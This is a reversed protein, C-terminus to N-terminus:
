KRRRALIAAVGVGLLAFTSPEPVTQFALGTGIGSETAFTSQTGDPTIKIIPGSFTTVFMNGASDFALRDPGNVSAFTSEVGGPTFENINGSGEDVEFLDGASNFALGAPFTLGSAFTSQTGGPTIETIIGNGNGYGSGVFLDGANNITLSIPTDFGTAFTSQLGGPTFKYINGSNYDAEFLNGANNFVLAQPDVGSAFTSQIGGPTIETINGGPGNGAANAVFLDGAGNFALWSPGNMGTAFTTQSGDPAIEYINGTDYFAAFLNQGHASAAMLLMAGACLTGGLSYNITINKMKM